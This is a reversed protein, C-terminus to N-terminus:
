ITDMAKGTLKTQADGPVPTMKKLAYNYCIMGTKAIAVILMKDGINKEFKYFIDFSVKSFEAATVSAIITDGYFVEQRFEIGADNMILGTGAFALETYGHHKLFQM